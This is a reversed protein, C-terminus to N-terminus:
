GDGVTVFETFGELMHFAEDDMSFSPCTGSRNISLQRLGEGSPATHKQHRYAHARCTGWERGQPFDSHRCLGCTPLVRYPLGRLVQLKNGDM